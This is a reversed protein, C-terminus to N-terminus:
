TERSAIVWEAGTPLTIVNLNVINKPQRGLYLVTYLCKEVLNYITIKRGYDECIALYKGEENISFHFNESYPKQEYFFKTTDLKEDYLYLIRSKINQSFGIRMYVLKM